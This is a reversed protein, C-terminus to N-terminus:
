QQKLLWNLAELNPLQPTKRGTVTQGGRSDLLTLAPQLSRAFAMEGVVTDAVTM